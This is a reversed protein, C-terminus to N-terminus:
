TYIFLKTVQIYRKYSVPNDIKSVYTIEPFNM